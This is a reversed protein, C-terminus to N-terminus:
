EWFRSSHFVEPFALSQDKTMLGMKFNLRMGEWMEKDLTLKGKLPCHLNEQENNSTVFILEDIELM